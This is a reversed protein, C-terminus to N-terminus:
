NISGVAEISVVKETTVMTAIARRQYVHGRTRCISIALINRVCRRTDIDPLLTAMSIGSEEDVQFLKHTELVFIAISMMVFGMSIVAYTQLFVVNPSCTVSSNCITVTV